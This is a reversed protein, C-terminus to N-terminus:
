VNNENKVTTLLNEYRTGETPQPQGTIHNLWTWGIGDPNCGYIPDMLLAELVLTVMVSMWNEGWDLETFLGVLKEQREDELETFKEEYIEVATENAWDLGEIIYENDEPERRFQDHLVWMVYEFAKLDKASPGNGDDPFIITLIRDLTTAQEASLLDNGELLVKSRDCSQIFALQSAAGAVLLGKLFKRRNLEWSELNSFTDPINRETKRIRKTEDM